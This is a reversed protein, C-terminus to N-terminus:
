SQLLYEENELDEEEDELEMELMVPQLLLLEPDGGTARPHTVLEGCLEYGAELATAVKQEFDEINRSSGSILLYPKM